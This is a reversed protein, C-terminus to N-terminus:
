CLIMASAGLLNVYRDVCIVVALSDLLGLLSSWFIYLDNFRKWQRGHHSARFPAPSCWPFTVSRNWYASERNGMDSEGEAAMPEVNDLAVRGMEHDPTVSLIQWWTVEKDIEIGIVEECDHVRKEGRQGGNCL